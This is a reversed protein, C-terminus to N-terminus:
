IPPPPVDRPRARLAEPLEDLIELPDFPQEAVLNAQQRRRFTVQFCLQRAIIAAPKLDAGGM